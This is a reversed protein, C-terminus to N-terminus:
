NKVVEAIYEDPNKPDEKPNFGAIETIADYWSRIEPARFTRGLIVETPQLLDFGRQETCAKNLTDNTFLNTDDILCYRFLRSAVTLISKGEYTGQAVFDGIVTAPPVKFLFQIRKGSADVIRPFTMKVYQPTARKALIEALSTGTNPVEPEASPAAAAMAEAAAANM